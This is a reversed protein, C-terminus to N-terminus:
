VGDDDADDVGDDGEGARQCIDGDHKGALAEDGEHGGEGAEHKKTGGDVLDGEGAEGGQGEGDALDLVDAEDEQRRHGGADRRQQRDTTFCLLLLCCRLAEHDRGRQQRHGEGCRDGSHEEDDDALAAVRRERGRWYKQWTQLVAEPM